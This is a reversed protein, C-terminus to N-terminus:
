CMPLFRHELSPDRLPSSPAFPKPTRIRRSTCSMEQRVEGGDRSRHRLKLLVARPSSSIPAPRRCPGDAQKLRFFFEDFQAAVVGVDRSGYKNIYNGDADTYTPDNAVLLVSPILPKDKKNDDDVAYNAARAGNSHGTVGIKTKDVYPLSAMLEVADSM